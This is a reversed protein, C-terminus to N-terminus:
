MEKISSKIYEREENSLGYKDFLQEDIEDITNEWDIDSQNTFDQMPVFKYVIQYINQSSKLIGVMFRLFKTERNKIKQNINLVTAILTGLCFIFILLM